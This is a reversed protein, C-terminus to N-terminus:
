APRDLEMTRWKRYLVWAMASGLLAPLWLNILVPRPDIQRLAPTEVTMGVLLGTASALTMMMLFTALVKLWPRQILILLGALATSVPVAGLMIWLFDVPVRSWNVTWSTLLSERYPDFSLNATIAQLMALAAIGAVLDFVLALALEQQLNKRWYPLLSETGLAGIRTFWSQAVRWSVIGMMIMPMLVMQSTFTRTAQAPIILAPFSAVLLFWFGAVMGFWLYRFPPNGTRWRQIRNWWTWHERSRPWSEIKEESAETAFSWGPKFPMPDTTQRRPLVSAPETRVLNRVAKRGIGYSLLPSFLLATLLVPNGVRLYNVSNPIVLVAALAVGQLFPGLQWLTSLTHLQQQLMAFLVAALALSALAVTLPVAALEFGALMLVVIQLIGGALMWAATVQLNRRTFNPIVGGSACRLQYALMAGVSLGLSFIPLLLAPLPMQRHVLAPWVKVEPLTAEAKELLSVGRQQLHGGVYLTELSHSKALKDLSNLTPQMKVDNTGSFALVLTQLHPMRALEDLLSLSLADENGIVLTSLEPLAALKDLGQLPQFVQLDLRQLGTLSAFPSLDHFHVSFIELYKLGKIQAVKAVGTHADHFRVHVIKLNPFESLVDYFSEPPLPQPINQPNSRDKDSMSYWLSSLDLEDVEAQQGSARVATLSALSNVRIRGRPPDPYNAVYTPNRETVGLTTITLWVLAIAVVLLFAKNTLYSLLIPWWRNPQAVESMAM